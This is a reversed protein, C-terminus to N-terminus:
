GGQEPGTLRHCGHSYPIRGVMGESGTLTQALVQIYGGGTNTIGTEIPMKNVARVPSPEPLTINCSLMKEMRAMARSRLRQYLGVSPTYATSRRMQDISEQECYHSTIVDAFLPAGYHHSHVIDFKSDWNLRYRTLAIACCLPFTLEVMSWQSGLTRVRQHHVGEDHLVARAASFVTVEHDAALARALSNVYRAVGGFVDTHNSVLAIKM